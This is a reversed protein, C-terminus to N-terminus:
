YLIILYGGLAAVVECKFGNVEGLLLHYKNDNLFCDKKRLKKSRFMILKFGAM